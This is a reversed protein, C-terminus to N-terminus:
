SDANSLFSLSSMFWSGFPQNQCNTVSINFLRVLSHAIERADEKLLRPNMQDPGSAKRMDMSLLVDLVGQKSVVLSSLVSDTYKNLTRPTTSM